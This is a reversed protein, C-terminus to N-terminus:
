AASRTAAVIAEVPMSLAAAIAEVTESSVYSTGKLGRELRSLYPASIGAAGAVKRLSARQDVRIARLARGNVRM